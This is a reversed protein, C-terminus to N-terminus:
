MKTIFVLGKYFEISAVMKELETPVGFSRDFYPVEGPQDTVGNRYLPGIFSKLYDTFLPRGTNNWYCCYLDEVVYTGGSKLLPFLTDFSIKMHANLHSGDDIIIDFPDFSSSLTNLLAPEAQSGQLVFVRDSSLHHLPKIDLGFILARPFYESWMKLSYGKDVGIELLKLPLARIREFHTEYYPTYNHGLSSKDTGCEIAIQDLSKLSEM